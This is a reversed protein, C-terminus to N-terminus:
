YLASPFLSQLPIYEGAAPDAEDDSAFLDDKFRDITHQGAFDDDSADMEIDKDEDEEDDLEAMHKRKKSKSKSKPAPLEDEDEEDEDMEDDEDDEEDSLMGMGFEGYDDEDEDNEDDDDALSSGNLPLSKGRRKINKVKVEEHFRVGGAKKKPSSSSPSPAPKFKQVSPVKPPPDFFDTYLIDLHLHTPFNLTYVSFIFSCYFKGGADAAEDEEDDEDMAGFTNGGGEELDEEDFSMKGGVPAFFDFEEELEEDDEDSGDDLDDRLSGKGASRAEAAETENNFADIDFFGDNLGFKDKVLKKSKSRKSKKSAPLLESESDPESSPDRLPAVAEGMDFSDWVDEEEEDDEDEEESDDEEDEESDDEDQDDDESDFEGFEDEMAKLMDAEDGVPGEEEKEEDSAEEKVASELMKSVREARLDLQAWIQDEGMDDTYLSILETPQFAKFKSERGKQKEKSYAQSRTQPASSPNLSDLFRTIHPLSTPESELAANMGENACGLLLVSVSLSSACLDFLFKVADLATKQMEDSGRAFSEPTASVANALANLQPPLQVETREDEAM